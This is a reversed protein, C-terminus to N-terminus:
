AISFEYGEKLYATIKKLEEAKYLKAVHTVKKGDSAVKFFLPDDVTRGLHIAVRVADTMINLDTFIRNTRFLVYRDKAVVEVRGLGTVFQEIANYTKVVSEPRNRLVDERRAADCSHRQNKRTFTRKCRPCTWDPM